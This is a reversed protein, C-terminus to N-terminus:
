RQYIYLREIRKFGRHWPHNWLEELPVTEVNMGKFLVNTARGHRELVLRALSHGTGDGMGYTVTPLGAGRYDTLFRARYGDETAPTVTPWGGDALIPVNGNTVSFNTYHKETMRDAPWERMWNNITYGGEVTKQNLTTLTLPWRWSYNAGGTGAGHGYADFWRGASPCKLIAMVGQENSSGDRFHSDSMYPALRYFWFDPDRPTASWSMSKDRNAEAYMTWALGFQKLNSACLVRRAQNRAKQLSPMMIALLLAIISIVVLLEILTFGNKVKKEVMM